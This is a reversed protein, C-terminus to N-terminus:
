VDKSYLEHLIDIRQKIETRLSQPALVEVDKGFSLIEAILERNVQVKLSIVAYKDNCLHKVLAQTHHIKKTEVYPYREKCFRLLINEVPKRIDRSVGVIENIRKKFDKPPKRFVTNANTVEKIRDIAYVSVRRYDDNNGLLFWRNNYQKLLYPHVLLRNTLGVYSQYDIVIPQHSIVASALSDFNNMGVLNANNQFEVATSDEGRMGDRLNRIILKLWRYHPIDSIELMEYLEQLLSQETEEYLAKMLSFSTDEYQYLKKGNRKLGDVLKIDYHRKLETIDNEITRRSITIDSRFGSVSLECERILDEMTYNAPNARFCKDLVKYRLLQIRNM